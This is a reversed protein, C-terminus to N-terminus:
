GNCVRRCSKAGTFEEDCWDDICDGDGYCAEGAPLGLGCFGDRQCVYPRECFQGDTFSCASGEPLRPRCIGSAQDTGLQCMGSVCEENVVCGVGEPLTGALPRECYTERYRYAPEFMECPNDDLADLCTRAAVPDFLIRGDAIGERIRYALQPAGHSGTCSIENDTDDDHWWDYYEATSCCEKMRGCHTSALERWYDDVTYPDSGCAALLTVLVARNM